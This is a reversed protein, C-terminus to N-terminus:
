SDQSDLKIPTKLDGNNKAVLQKRYAEALQKLWENQRELKDLNECKAIRDRARCATLSAM